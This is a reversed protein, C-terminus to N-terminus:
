GILYSRPKDLNMGLVGAVNRWIEEGEGNPDDARVMFPGAAGGPEAYLWVGQRYLYLYETWAEKGDEFYDSASLFTKPEAKNAAGALSAEVTDELSSYYGGAAVARAQAPVMYNEVLTKGVGELDGDWHVYTSTVVGTEPDEYAISSRTGM